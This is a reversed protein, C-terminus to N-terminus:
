LSRETGPDQQRHEELARQRSRTFCGMSTGSRGAGM